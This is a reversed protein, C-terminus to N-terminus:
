IQMVVNIQVNNNVQLVIGSQAYNKFGPAKVELRYPGVPLNPLTYGVENSVTTRVLQKDTETMTVEAGVVAKGTPDTITGSVQAVAVSQGRAASPLGISFSFAISLAVTALTSRSSQMRHSM